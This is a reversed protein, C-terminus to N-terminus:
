DKGEMAALKGHLIRTADNALKNRKGLRDRMDALKGALTIIKDLDDLEHSPAALRPPESRSAPVMATGSGDEATWERVRRELWQGVTMGERRAANIAADRTEKPVVKITWPGLSEAVGTLPEADDAM